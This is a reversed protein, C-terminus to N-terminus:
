NDINKNLCVLFDDLKKQLLEIRKINNSSLNNNIFDDYDKDKIPSTFYMEPANKLNLGSIFQYVKSLTDYPNLALSNMSMIHVQSSPFINFLQELLRCYELRQYFKEFYDDLTITLYYLRTQSDKCMNHSGLEGTKAIKKHMNYWSVLVSKIPRICVIIKIRPNEAIMRELAYETKPLQLYAAYKHGNLFGTKYRAQLYNSDLKSKDLFYNIELGTGDENSTAVNIMPMASLYRVLASTGCKAFGAVVWDTKLIM